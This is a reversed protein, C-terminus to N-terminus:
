SDIDIGRGPLRVYGGVGTQVNHRPDARSRTFLALERRVHNVTGGVTALEHEGAAEDVQAWLAGGQVYAKKQEPDIKVNTLYRSLDIVMGTETSSTGAPSHGGGRIAIPTGSAKAYKLATAVDNADRVFVVFKARRTANTAWRKIADEYGPDSPTVIDGKISHRFANFDAM